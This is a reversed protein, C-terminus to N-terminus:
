NSMWIPYFYVHHKGEAAPTEEGPEVEAAEGEVAAGNSELADNVLCLFQM